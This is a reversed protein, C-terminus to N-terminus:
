CCSINPLPATVETILAQAQCHTLELGSHAQIEREAQKWYDEPDGAFLALEAIEYARARIEDDLSSM